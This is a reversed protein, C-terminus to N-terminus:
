SNRVSALSLFKHVKLKEVLEDLVEGIVLPELIELFAAMRIESNVDSWTDRFFYKSSLEYLRTKDARALQCEISFAEVFAKESGVNCLVDFIWSDLSEGESINALATEAEARFVSALSCIEEVSSNNLDEDQIGSRIQKIVETLQREVYKVRM